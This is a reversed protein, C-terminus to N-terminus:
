VSLRAKKMMQVESNPGGWIYSSTANVDDSLFVHSNISPDCTVATGNPGPHHTHPHHATLGPSSGLATLPCPSPLSPPSSASTSPSDPVGERGQLGAQPLSSSDGM